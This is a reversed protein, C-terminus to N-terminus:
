FASFSSLESFTSVNVLTPKNMVRLVVSASVFETASVSWVSVAFSDLSVLSFVLGALTARWVLCVLSLWVKLISIGFDVRSFSASPVERDSLDSLFVM